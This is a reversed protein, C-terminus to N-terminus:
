DGLSKLAGVGPAPQQDAPSASPLGTPSEGAGSDSGGNAMPVGTEDSEGPQPVKVLYSPTPVLTPKGTVPDTGHRMIDMGNVALTSWRHMAQLMSPDVPTLTPAVAKVGREGMQKVTDEPLPVSTVLLTANPDRNQDATDEERASERPWAGICVSSAIPGHFYYAEIGQARAERVAEVAAEKRDPSDKFIAIQLSYYGGSRSLDWAPNAAPDPSDLPVPLSASFPRFGNSDTMGRIADLDAIARKGEAADSADRPDVTRYFGYYLTSKDNGHVIYWDKMRTGAMLSQRMLRSEEIHGSGAISQCYITYLAGKPPAPMDSGAQLAASSAGSSPSALGASGQANSSAPRDPACSAAAFAIAAVALGHFVHRIM